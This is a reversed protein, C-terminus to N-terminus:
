KQYTMSIHTELMEKQKSVIHEDLEQSLAIVKEHRLGYKDILKNLQKKLEKM